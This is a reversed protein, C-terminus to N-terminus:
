FGGLFSESVMASSYYIAYAILLLIPLYVLSKGMKGHRMLAVMVSAATVEVFIYIQILFVITNKANVAELVLAEGIKLQSAAKIFLNVLSTVLGLIGPAVFAGAAVIFIVQLLTETIREKEIRHMARIDDAIDDLVDALGAGAKVTDVIVTVSRKVLRSNIADGFDRLANELSEGEETKRLVLELEKTLPGMDTTAVERLASEYTGGAKLVDAMQKLANPLETEIEDIRKIALYYPYGLLVDMSVLFFVVTVFSSINPFLTTIILAGVIAVVISIILSFAIYQFANLRFKTTTNLIGQYWDIFAGITYKSPKAKKEEGKKQLLKKIKEIIALVM